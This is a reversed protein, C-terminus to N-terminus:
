GTLLCLHVVPFPGQGPVAGSAAIPSWAQKDHRQAIGTAREALHHPLGTGLDPGPQVLLGPPIKPAGATIANEIIELLAHDGRVDVLRFEVPEVRIHERVVADDGVRRPNTVRIALTSDFARNLM